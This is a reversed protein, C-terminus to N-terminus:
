RTVAAASDALARVTAWSSAPPTWRVVNVWTPEPQIFAWVESAAGRVAGNIECVAWRAPPSQYDRIFLTLTDIRLGVAATYQDTNPVFRERIEAESLGAAWAPTLQAVSTVEVRFDIQKVPAGTLAADNVPDDHGIPRARVAVMLMPPNDGGDEDCHRFGPTAATDLNFFRGATARRLAREADATWPDRPTSDVATGATASPTATSSDGAHADGKGTCGFLGVLLFTAVLRTM